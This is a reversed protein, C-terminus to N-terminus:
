YECKVQFNSKSRKRKVNLIKKYFDQFFIKRDLDLGSWAKKPSDMGSLYQRTPFELIMSLLFPVRVM